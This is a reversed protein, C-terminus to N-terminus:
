PESRAREIAEEAADAEVLMAVCHRYYDQGADTVSFRRTSRHILRVGLRRELGAVRRSLKSKPVGLARGAPAFGGHDVAQVFFYLDNLDYM